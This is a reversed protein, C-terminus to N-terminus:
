SPTHQHDKYLNYKGDKWGSLTWSALQVTPSSLWVPDGIKFYWQQTHHNYAAKQKRVVQALYCEIFDSLQPLKTRLQSQYSVAYYVTQTPFPNQIQSCGFMLEFPSVGTSSLICQQATHLYCM